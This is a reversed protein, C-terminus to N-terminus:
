LEYMWLTNDLKNIFYLMEGSTSRALEIIDLKRGSEKYADFLLEGTLTTGNLFWVSDSFSIEGTYWTDQNRLNTQSSDQACIFSGDDTSLCKEVLVASDLRSNFGISKSHFYSQLRKGEIVNYHVIDGSQKATFGLGSIPLRTFVGGTIEYAQGELSSAPKPYFLHTGSSREAWDITAELFPLTFLPTMSGISPNFVTAVTSDGNRDTIYLEEDNNFAADTAYGEYALEISVTSTSLTGIALPASKSASAGVFAYHRGSNSIEARITQPFTTASVRITEGSEVDITYVHGTGMEVYYVLEPTSTSTQVGSFGAVPGTTLQRLRSASVNVVPAEEVVPPPPLISGEEAAGGESGLDAFMDNTSTPAGYVMLYGWVGLLLLVVALGGFIFFKKNM